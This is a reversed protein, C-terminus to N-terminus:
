ESKSLVAGAMSSTVGYTGKSARIHPLAHKVLYVFSMFNVAMVKEITEISLHEISNAPMIGHNIYLV